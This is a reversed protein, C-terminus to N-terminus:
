FGKTLKSWYVQFPLSSNKKWKKLESPCGYGDDLKLVNEDDKFFVGDRM